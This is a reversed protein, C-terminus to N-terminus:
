DIKKRIRFVFVVLSGNGIVIVLYNIIEIASSYGFVEYLIRTVSVIGMAAFIILFILNKQIESFIITINTKKKTYLEIAFVLIVIYIAGPTFRILYNYFIHSFIDM